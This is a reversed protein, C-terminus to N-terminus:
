ANEKKFLVAFASFLGLAVLVLASLTNSSGGTRTLSSPGRSTSNLPPTTVSPTTVAAVILNVDGRDTPTTQAIRVMVNQAGITGNTTPISDCQLAVNATQNGTLTCAPSFGTATSTGSTVGGNPLAYNNTSSGTLPFTCNYTNPITITQVNTCNSSNQINPIDIVTPTDTANFSELCLRPNADATGTLCQGQQQIQYTILGAQDAEPNYLDVTKAPTNVAETALITSPPNMSCAVNTQTLKSDNNFVLWAGDNGLNNIQERYCIHVFRNNLIDGTPANGNSAVNRSGTMLCNTTSQALAPNNNSILYAGDATDNINNQTTVCSHLYRQNNIGTTRAPDTNYDPDVANGQNGNFGCNANNQIMSPNNNLILTAQDIAFNNTQQRWCSHIYRWKGVNLTGTADTTATGFYGATPSAALVGTANNYLSDSLTVTATSDIGDNVITGPVLTWGPTTATVTQNPLPIGNTPATYNITEDRYCAGSNQLVGGNVCTRDVTRSCTSGSLTFGTPCTFNASVQLDNTPMFGSQFAFLLIALLFPLVVLLKSNNLALKLFPHTPSSKKM